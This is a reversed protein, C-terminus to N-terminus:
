AVAQYKHALYSSISACLGGFSVIVRFLDPNATAMSGPIAGILMAIVGAAMGITAMWKGSIKISQPSM